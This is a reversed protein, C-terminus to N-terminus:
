AAATLISPEPAPTPATTYAVKHWSRASRGTAWVWFAVWAAANLVLFSAAASALRSRAAVAGVLGALGLAYCALQGGLAWRFFDGPLTASLLLVGILAWPAVLRLLKHSVLQVWIPNRWPLLAGPARTLLQFGGSLTRVKRRFEDKARSPLRDYARARPDHIVRYGQLAVQLPWYVDDLITGAPIPRFLERRVASIAGTVGVMSAIESEKRRMWKELRWYLGVGQMIGPASEVILEGSVAGVSPDTFNALLNRLADPAWSQRADAFVVIEHRSAACGATLAVAKGARAPLELVRVFGMGSARAIAATDDTSGDSVVIVEGV